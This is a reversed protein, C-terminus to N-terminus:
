GHTTGAEARQRNFRGIGPSFRGVRAAYTRYASGHTRELYPEEVARVQLEIGIAALGGALFALPNPVLLILGLLSIGVFSFIPNRVWAFLGSTVLETTESEDVGVRWSDGMSRQALVAGVVGVLACGAGAIHLPGSTAVLAGGPWELLAAVPAIPALILGSSWSVGAFWSTSGVHGNFGKLGTSGTQKWQVLSRVVFLSVFWVISIVIALRPM